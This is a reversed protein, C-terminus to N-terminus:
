GPLCSLVACASMWQERVPHFLVLFILLADGKEQVNNKVEKEDTMTGVVSKANTTKNQTPTNEWSGASPQYTSM